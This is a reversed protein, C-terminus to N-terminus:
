AATGAAFATFEEIQSAFVALGQEWFASETITCGVAACVEECPAAGTKRLMAVYQAPFDGGGPTTYQRYLALAFLQGFAYPFNYFDL